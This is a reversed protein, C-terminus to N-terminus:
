VVVSVVAPVKQKFLTSLTQSNELNLFLYVSDIVRLTVHRSMYRNDTFIHMYTNTYVYSYMHVTYVSHICIYIHM